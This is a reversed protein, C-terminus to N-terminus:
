SCRISVFDVALLKMGSTPVSEKYSIREHEACCDLSTHSSTINSDNPVIQPSSKDLCNRLKDLERKLRENEAKQLQVTEELKRNREILIETENSKELLHILITKVHTPLSADATLSKVADALCSIQGVPSSQPKRKHPREQISLPALPTVVNSHDM